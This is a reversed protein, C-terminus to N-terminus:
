WLEKGKVRDWCRVRVWSEEKEEEEEDDDDDQSEKKEEKEEEEQEDDDDQLINCTSAHTDANLVILDLIAYKTTTTADFILVRICTLMQM